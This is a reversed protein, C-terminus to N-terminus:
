WSGRRRPGPRWGGRGSTWRPNRQVFGLEELDTLHRHVTSPTAFGLKTQIERVSVPWGDGAIEVLATLVEDRTAGLQSNRRRM